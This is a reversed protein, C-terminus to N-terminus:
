MRLPTAWGDYIDPLMDETVGPPWAWREVKAAMAKTPLKDNKNLNESATLPQLNCFNMCRKQMKRHKLKYMSMPFIHDIEMDVIFEGERLQINLHRTTKKYSKGILTRTSANKKYGKDRVYNALRCRLRCTVAYQEDERLRERKRKNIRPRNERAHKKNRVRDNAM